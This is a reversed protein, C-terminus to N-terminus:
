DNKGPTRGGPLEAGPRRSSLMQETFELREELRELRQELREELRQVGVGPSAPAQLSQQQGRKESILVELFEGLRRVIPRLLIVGGVTLFLTVFVIVMATTDQM